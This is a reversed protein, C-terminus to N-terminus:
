STTMSPAVDVDGFQRKARVVRAVAPRVDRRTVHDDFIGLVAVVERDVAHHQHRLVFDRNAERRAVVTVIEDLVGLLAALFLEFDRNADAHRRRNVHRRLELRPGANELQLDGATEGALRDVHDLAPGDIQFHRRKRLDHEFALQRDRRLGAVLPREALEAAVGRRLHGVFSDHRDFRHGVALIGNVVVDPEALRRVLM